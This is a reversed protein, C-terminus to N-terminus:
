GILDAECNQVDVSMEEVAVDRGYAYLNAADGAMSTAQQKPLRVVFTTGKGPTSHVDISGGHSKVVANYCIALGQGTGKGVDKTTFFPDFIKAQLEPPIGVGTDSVELRVYDGDDVSRVEIRGVGQRDAEAVADAANVILNLLVQNIEGVNCEIRPLSTDLSTHLEAVYKWRNRTIVCAAAILENLDVLEKQSKGPHSFQKMARTISTVREFADRCDDLSSVIDKEVAELDAAPVEVAVTAQTRDASSGCTGRLTAFLEEVAQGILELNDGLYQMPTNIEHAVGAALQGIAELKQAQHLQKEMQKLDTVDEHTVVVATKGGVTFRNARATHFRPCDESDKAQYEFAFGQGGQLTEQLKDALRRAVAANDGQLRRCHELYDVGNACVPGVM